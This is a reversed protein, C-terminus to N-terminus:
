MVIIADTRWSLSWDAPQRSSPRTVRGGIVVLSMVAPWLQTSAARLMRELLHARQTRSYGDWLEGGPATCHHAPQGMSCAGGGSIHQACHRSSSLAACPSCEDGNVVISFDTAAPLRTRMGNIGLGELIFYELNEKQGEDKEFYSYSVLVQFPLDGRHSQVISM